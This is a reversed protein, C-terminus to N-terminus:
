RKLLYGAIFAVACVAVGVGAIVANSLLGRASAHHVKKVNARSDPLENGDTVYYQAFLDNQIWLLKNFALLTRKIADKDLPLDSVAGIVVNEVFTLLANIHIYEVNISTKKTPNKTHILAVWDLYKVTAPGYDATVLKRLYKSLMDKRFQIQESTQKLAAADVVVSGNFGEMRNAFVQKTIDFSFLKAYVADVVVPVLPEIHAASDRIAKVDEPGFDVFKAVYNFRYELDTYLRDRDVHQM